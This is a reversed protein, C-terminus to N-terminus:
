QAASTTPPLAQLASAELRAKLALASREGRTTRTVVMWAVMAVVLAASIGAPYGVGDILAGIVPPGILGGLGAATFLVGLATGLGGTGLLEAVVAPTLAVIGGYGVGLVVAFLVLLGYSDGALLWVGLSLGLVLFSLQFLAMCSTHAALAGLGLRGAVSAAGILGVILAPSGSVEQVAMYDAMFVFPAFLALSTLFMSIYLIRFERFRFLTKVSVPPSPAEASQTPPRRAGLSAVGLAVAAGVALIVYTTRWGYRGILWEALPATILTGMGIGAVAVGLAATRGREFWQGVAAVMPIYGCAVGIGVGLGYTLYGLWLSDVRSTAYLGLTMCVAGVILVRRPGIRDAIPGTIAGLLFYLFATFAFFISTASSDAGFEDAMPTFFAGFSYAIGFVTFTSVFAAAVVVWAQASVVPDGAHLREDVGATSVLTDPERAGIAPAHASHSEFGARAILEESTECDTQHGTTITM